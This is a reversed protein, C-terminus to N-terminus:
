PKLYGDLDVPPYGVRRFKDPQLPGAATDWPVTADIGMKATEAKRGPAHTASPDLSSGPQGSRIVMTTM